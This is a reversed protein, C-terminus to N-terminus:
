AARGEEVMRDLRRNVRFVFPCCVAALLAVGSIKALAHALTCGAYSGACLLGYIGATAAAGATAGFVVATLISDTMVVNHFRYAALGLLCFCLPSYGLPIQGLLDQLLGALFAAVMAVALGRNLAYYLAVALLLPIKAQGLSTFVPLMWQVTASMILMIIMVIWTM